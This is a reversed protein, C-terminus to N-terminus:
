IELSFMGGVGEGRGKGSSRTGIDISLFHCSVFLEAPAEAQWTNSINMELLFLMQGNRILKYM